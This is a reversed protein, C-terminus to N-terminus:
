RKVIRRPLVDMPSEHDEVCRGSCAVLGHPLKVDTAVHYPPLEAEGRLALGQGEILVDELVPDRFPRRFTLQIPLWEFATFGQDEFARPAPREHAAVGHELM